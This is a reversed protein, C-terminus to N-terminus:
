LGGLTKNLQQRHNAPAIALALQSGSSMEVDSKHASVLVCSNSGEIRSHLDIGPLANVEDIELAQASWENPPQDMPDPPAIMQDAPNPPYLAVIAAEVPITEGNKLAARDFRLALESKGPRTNDITVTGLLTSGKPLRAGNRLRVNDILKAQVPHGPQIRKADLNGVLTARARVMKNAEYQAGVPLPAAYAPANRNSLEQVNQNPLAQSQVAPVAFLVLAAIVIPLTLNVASESRM